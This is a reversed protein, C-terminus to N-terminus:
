DSTEFECDFMRGFVRTSASLPAVVDGESSGLVVEYAGPEISITGCEATARYCGDSCVYGSRTYELHTSVDIRDGAVSVGCSAEDVMDCSHTLCSDIVAQVRIGSGNVSLCLTGQDDVITRQADSADNCGWALTALVLSVKFSKM